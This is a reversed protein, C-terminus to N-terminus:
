DYRFTFRQLLYQPHALRCLDTLHDGMEKMLKAQEELFDCLRPDTHISGLAHLDLLAQSLNKELAIATEMADQTTGWEDPSPKAVDQFLAQGGCRNQMKLLWQAGEQKMEALEQFVHGM